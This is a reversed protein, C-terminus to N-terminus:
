GRKSVPKKKGCFEEKLTLFEAISDEGGWKAQDGNKRAQLVFREVRELYGTASDTLDENTINPNSHEELLTRVWHV